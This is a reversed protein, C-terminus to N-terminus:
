IWPDSAHYTRRPKVTGLKNLENQILALSVVGGFIFSVLAALLVWASIDHVKKHQQEQIDVVHKAYKYHSYILYMGLTVVSLLLDEGWKPGTGGKWDKIDNTINRSWVIGIVSLFVLGIIFFVIITTIEGARLAVDNAGYHVIMAIAVAFSIIGLLAVLIYPTTNREVPWQKWWGLLPAGILAVLFGAVTGWAGILITITVLDLWNSYDNYLQIFRILIAGLGSLSGIVVVSMLITRIDDYHKSALFRVLAFGCALLIIIGAVFAVWIAGGIENDAVKYTGLDVDQCSVGAWPLYFFILVLLAGAPSVLLKGIKVIENLRDKGKKEM